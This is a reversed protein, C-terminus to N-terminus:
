STYYLINGECQSFKCSGCRKNLSVTLAIRLLCTKFLDLSVQSLLGLLQLRALYQVLTVEQYVQPPHNQQQVTVEM